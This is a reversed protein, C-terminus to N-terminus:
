ISLYMNGALVGGNSLVRASVRATSFRLSGLSCLDLVKM